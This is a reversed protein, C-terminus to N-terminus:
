IPEGDLARRAMAAAMGVLCSDSNAIVTLAEHYRDFEARAADRERIAWAKEAYEKPPTGEDNLREAEADAGAWNDGYWRLPVIGFMVCWGQRAEYALEPEPDRHPTTGPDDDTWYAHAGGVGFLHRHVTGAHDNCDLRGTAGDFLYSADITANCTDM